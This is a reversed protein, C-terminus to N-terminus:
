DYRGWELQVNAKKAAEQMLTIAEELNDLYVFATEQHFGMVMVTKNEKILTEFIGLLRESSTYDMLSANNPYQMLGPLLERPQDLISADPHLQRLMQVMASQEGWADAILSADTRSSDWMFGNTHLASALKPGFQWGGARFYRPQDFGNEVLLATSCAVLLTLETEDYALELSVTYGCEGGECDENARAFSPTSKYPVKCREVLSKWAHLHLGQADGPSFTSRIQATMERRDVEPRLYYVPNLLHLMPIHPHKARFHRISDLNEEDLSCGEWDVTMYVIIKQETASISTHHHFFFVSATLCILLRMSRSTSM